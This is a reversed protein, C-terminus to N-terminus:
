MELIDAVASHFGHAYRHYRGTLLESSVVLVATARKRRIGALRRELHHEETNLLRQARLTRKDGTQILRDRLPRVRRDLADTLFEERNLRTVPRNTGPIILGQAQGEHIRYDVLCRGDAVIAGLSSAVAALWGDHFFFSRAAGMVEPFPLALTIVDRRIVMTCGTVIPRNWLLGM